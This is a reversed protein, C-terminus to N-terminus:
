NLLILILFLTGYSNNFIDIVTQTGLGMASPFYCRNSKTIFHRYDNTYVISSLKQALQFRSYPGWTVLQWLEM